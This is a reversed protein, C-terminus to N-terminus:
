INVHTFYYDILEPNIIFHNYNGQILNIKENQILEIENPPYMYNWYLLVDLDIVNELILDNHRFKMYALSRAIMGRSKAYPIFLKLKNNKYNLNPDYKILKNNSYFFYENNINKFHKYEDSYKYNSRNNNLLSITLFINHMDFKSQPYAKIYSQPFVHEATLVNHKNYIIAKNEFDYLNENKIYPTEKYIDYYINNDYYYKKTSKFSIYKKPIDKKFTDIGKKNINHFNSICLCNCILSKMFKM